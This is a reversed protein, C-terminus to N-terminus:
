DASDAAGVRGRTVFSCESLCRPYVIFNKKQNSVTM